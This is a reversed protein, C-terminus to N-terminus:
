GQWNRSGDGGSATASGDDAALVKDGEEGIPEKKLKGRKRKLEAEPAAALRRTMNPAMIRDIIAKSRKLAHAVEDVREQLNDYADFPPPKGSWGSINIQGTKADQISYLIKWCVAELMANPANKVRTVRVNDVMHGDKSVKMDIVNSFDVVAEFLQQVLAKQGHKDEIFGVCDPGAAKDKNNSAQYDTLIAQAHDLDEVIGRYSPTHIHSVDDFKPLFPQEHSPTPARPSPARPIGPM